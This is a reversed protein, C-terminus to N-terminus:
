AASASGHDGNLFKKGGVGVEIRKHPRGMAVGVFKNVQSHTHDENKWTNLNYKRTNVSLMQIVYICTHEGLRSFIDRILKVVRQLICFLYGFM